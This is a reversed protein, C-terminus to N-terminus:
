QPRPGEDPAPTSPLHGMTLQVKSLTVSIVLIPPMIATEVLVHPLHADTHQCNVDEDMGM